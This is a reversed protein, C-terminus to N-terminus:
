RARADGCSALDSLLPAAVSEEYVARGRSAMAEGLGPDWPTSRPTGTLAVYDADSRIGTLYDAATMRWPQAAHRTMVSSAIAIGPWDFDGHYRLEGGGSVIAAALQNFATSPRGEGCLLAGAGPGLEAAARRLVAPNECVHVVAAPVTPPMTMLQHLTVYFPVGLSAAGTLWEGLGPGHAPLNLVLV